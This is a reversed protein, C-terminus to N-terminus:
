WVDSVCGAVDIKVRTPRGSGIWPQPRNVASGVTMLEPCLRENRLGCPYLRGETTARSPGRGIMFRGAFTIEGLTQAM